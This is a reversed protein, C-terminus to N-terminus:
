IPQSNLSARVSRYFSGRLFKSLLRLPSKKCLLVNTLIPTELYTREAFSQRFMVQSLFRRVSQDSVGLRSLSQGNLLLCAGLYRTAMRHGSFNLDPVSLGQNTVISWLRAIDEVDRLRVTRRKAYHHLIGSHFVAHELLHVYSPVSINTGSVNVSRAEELVKSAPLLTCLEDSGLRFHVEISGPGHIDFNPMLRPLHHHLKEDVPGASKPLYGQSILIEQARASDGRAVLIDIDVTTRRGPQDSYLGAFEYALGKLPVAVIEARKLTSLVELCQAQLALNRERNLEYIASLLSSADSPLSDWVSLTRLAAPLAPTVKHLDALLILKQWLRRSGWITRRQVRQRKLISVLLEFHQRRELFMNM